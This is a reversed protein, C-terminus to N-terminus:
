TAVPEGVKGREHEDKCSDREIEVGASAQTRDGPIGILMGAWATREDGGIPRAAFRVAADREGHDAAGHTDRAGCPM